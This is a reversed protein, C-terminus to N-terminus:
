TNQILNGNSDIYLIYIFNIPPFSHFTMKIEHSMSEIFVNEM